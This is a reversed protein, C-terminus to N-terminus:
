NFLEGLGSVHTIQAADKPLETVLPRTIIAHMTLGVIFAVVMAIVLVWAATLQGSGVVKDSMPYDILAKESESRFPM